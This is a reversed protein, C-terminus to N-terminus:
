AKRRKLYYRVPKIKYKLQKGIHIELNAGKSKKWGHLTAIKDCKLLEAIDRRLCGEWSRQPSHKDLEPPSIVKYGKKRLAKAAKQFAPRNLDPLGTM